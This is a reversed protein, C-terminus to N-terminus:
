MYRSVKVWEVRSVHVLLPAAFNVGVTLPVTSGGKHEYMILFTPDVGGVGSGTPTPSTQGEKRMGHGPVLATIHEPM